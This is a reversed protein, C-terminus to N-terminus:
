SRFLDEAPNVTLKPTSRERRAEDHIEKAFLSAVFLGLDLVCLAGFVALDWTFLVSSATLFVTVVFLGFCAWMVLAEHHVEPKPKPADEPM